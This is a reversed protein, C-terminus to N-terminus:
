MIKFGIGIEFNSFYWEKVLEFFFFYMYEKERKIEMFVKKLIFYRYCVVSYFLSFKMMM